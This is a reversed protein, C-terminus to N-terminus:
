VVLDNADMSFRSYRDVSASSSSNYYHVEIWHGDTDILCDQWRSKRVVSDFRNKAIFSGAVVDSNINNYLGNFGRQSDVLLVTVASLVILTAISAIILEIITFGSRIKNDKSKM